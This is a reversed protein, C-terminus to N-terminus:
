LRSKVTKEPVDLQVSMEQYSLFEVFHRLIVVERYDPPLKM